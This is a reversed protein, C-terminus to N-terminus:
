KKDLPAVREVCQNECVLSIGTMLNMTVHETERRRFHQLGILKDIMVNWFFMRSCVKSVM